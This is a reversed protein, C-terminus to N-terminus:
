YEYHCCGTVKLVKYKLVHSAVAPLLLCNLQPEKNVVNVPINISKIQQKSFLM